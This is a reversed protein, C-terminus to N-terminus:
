ILGLRGMRTLIAEVVDDFAYSEDEIWEKLTGGEKQYKTNFANYVKVFDTDSLASLKEYPASDHGTLNFGDMDQYLQDSIVAIEASSVGYVNNTSGDPNDQPPPAITTKRKGKVYFWVGVIVMLVVVIAFIILLQKPNLKM